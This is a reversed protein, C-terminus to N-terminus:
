LKINTTKCPSSGQHGGESLPMIVMINYSLKQQEVQIRVLVLPTLSGQAATVSYFMTTSTNLYSRFDSPGFDLASDM